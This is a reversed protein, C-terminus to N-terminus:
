RGRGRRAGRRHRHGGGRRRRGRARERRLLGALRPEGVGPQGPVAPLDRRDARRQRRVGTTRVLGDTWWGRCRSAKWCCHAVGPGGGLSPANDPCPVLMPPHRCRLRGTTEPPERGQGSAPELTGEGRGGLGLDAGPVGEGGVLVHQHDGGGPRALGQGREQRGDVAQGGGRRDGLALAEPDEVDGRELGQGGVDLAVEPRGQGAQPRGRGAPVRGERVDGDAHAGAVGRGVDAAAERGVRGVDEDGGGLRQEQQEGGPGALRQGVDVRHDDVLDVRHDRGLAAGVEREAQLAQVLQQLARGAADAQRGGHAGQVLHGAEEAAGARDGDHGRRALLGEVQRHHHRDLVHRRDSLLGVVRRGARCEPRGSREEIQGWMSSRSTSSIRAWREVM